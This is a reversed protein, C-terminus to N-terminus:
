ASQVICSPAEEGTLKGGGENSYKDMISMAKERARTIEM